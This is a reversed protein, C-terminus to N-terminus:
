RGGRKFHEKQENTPGDDEIRGIDRPRRIRNFKRQVINRVVPLGCNSCVCKHSFLDGCKSCKFELM